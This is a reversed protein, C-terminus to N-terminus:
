PNGQHVQVAVDDGVHVHGFKNQPFDKRMTRLYVFPRALCTCEQRNQSNPLVNAALAHSASEGAVLLLLRREVVM